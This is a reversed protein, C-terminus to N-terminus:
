IIRRETVNRDPRENEVEATLDSPEERYNSIIIRLKEFLDNDIDEYEEEEVDYEDHQLLMAKVMYEMTIGQEALKQVIFVASPKPLQPEGEENYYHQEMSIDQLDHELDNLNNTFFRLGRLAYDSYMDSLFPTESSGIDSVEDFESESKEAMVTRCYPCGFGNHAINSILCSAHFIHGCETTVCNKNIEINDM